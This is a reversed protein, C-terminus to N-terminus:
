YGDQVDGWLSDSSYYLNWHEEDVSRWYDEEWQSQWIAEAEAYAKLEDLMAQNALLTEREEM